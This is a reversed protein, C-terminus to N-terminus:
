ESFGNAACIADFAVWNGRDVCRELMKYEIMAEEGTYRLSTFKDSIREIIFTGAGAGSGWLLRFSDSELDILKEEGLQLTDGSFTYTKGQYDVFWEHDKQYVQYGLGFQNSAQNMRAKTSPTKWGGTDLKIIGRNKDAEVVLTNHYVVSILGNTCVASTNSKGLQNMRSM